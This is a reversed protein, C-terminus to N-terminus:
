CVFTETSMDAPEPMGSRDIRYILHSHRIAKSWFLYTLMLQPLFHFVVYVCINQIIDDSLPSEKYLGVVHQITGVSLHFLSIMLIIRCDIYGIPTTRVLPPTRLLNRSSQSLRMYLAGMARAEVFEQM